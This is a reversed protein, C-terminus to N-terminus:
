SEDARITWSELDLVPVVDFTDLKSAFIVDEEYGNRVLNVGGHATRFFDALTGAGDSTAAKVAMWHDFAIHASDDMKFERGNEGAM